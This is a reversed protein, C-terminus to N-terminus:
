NLISEFTIGHCRRSWACDRASIKKSDLTVTFQVCTLRQCTAVSSADCLYSSTYLRSYFISEIQVKATQQHEVPDLWTACSFVSITLLRWLNENSLNNILGNTVIRILSPLFVFGILWSINFDGGFVRLCFFAYFFVGLINKEKSRFWNSYKLIPCRVIYIIFLNWKKKKNNNHHTYM